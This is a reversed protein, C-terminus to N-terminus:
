AGGVKEATTQAISAVVKGRMSRFLNVFYAIGLAMAPVWWYLGTGLAVPGTAAYM